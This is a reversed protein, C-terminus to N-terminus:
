DKALPMKRSLLVAARTGKCKGHECVCPVDNIVQYSRKLRILSPAVENHRPAHRMSADIEGHLTVHAVYALRQKLAILWTNRKGRKRSRFRLDLINGRSPNLIQHIMKVTTERNDIGVAPYFPFVM